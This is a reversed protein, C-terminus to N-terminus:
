VASVGLKQRIAALVEDAGIVRRSNTDLYVSTQTVSDRRVHLTIVRLDSDDLRSFLTNRLRIIGEEKLTKDPKWSSLNNVTDFVSLYVFDYGKEVKIEQSNSAPVKEIPLYPSSKGACAAFILSLGLFLAISFKFKM